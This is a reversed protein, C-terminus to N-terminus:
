GQGQAGAPQHAEVRRTDALAQQVAARRRGGSSRRRTRRPRPRRCPPLPAPQQRTSLARPRLVPVSEQLTVAYPRQGTAQRRRDIAGSPQPEPLALKRKRDGPHHLSPDPPRAHGGDDTRRRLRRGVGSVAPQHHHHTSTSAPSCTSCSTAAPEPSRCTDSSTWSSSTAAACPTPLAGKAVTLQYKISRATKDAVEAELLTGLVWDAGRKQKRGAELAEDYTAKMGRLGLATMLTLIESRKMRAEGSSRRLPRLRGGARRETGARAEVSYWNTDLRCTRSAKTVVPVHGRFPSAPSALCRREERLFVELISM